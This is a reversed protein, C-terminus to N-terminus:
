RCLEHIGLLENAVLINYVYLCTFLQALLQSSSLTTAYEQCSYLLEALIDIQQRVTGVNDADGVFGVTRLRIHFLIYGNSIFAHFATIAKGLIQVVGQGIGSVHPERSRRNICCYIHKAIHHIAVGHCFRHCVTDGSTDNIFSSGGLHKSVVFLQLCYFCVILLTFFLTGILVLNLFALFRHRLHVLNQPIRVTQRHHCSIENLM